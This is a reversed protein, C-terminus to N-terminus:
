EHDSEEDDDEDEDDALSTGYLTTFGLKGLLRGLDNLEYWDDDDIEVGSLKLARKVDDVVDGLDDALTLSGILGFLIAKYDPTAADTELM